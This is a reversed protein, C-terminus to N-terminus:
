LGGVKMGSIDTRYIGNFTNLKKVPQNIIKTEPNNNPKTNKDELAKMIPKITASCLLPIIFLASACVGIFASTTKIKPLNTKALNEAHKVAEKIEASENGSKYMEYGRKSM